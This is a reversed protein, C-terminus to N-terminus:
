TPKVKSVIRKVIEDIGLGITFSLGATINASVEVEIGDPLRTPSNFVPEMNVLHHSFEHFRAVIVAMIGFSIVLRILGKVFYRWQFKYPTKSDTKIATSLNMLFRIIIGVIGVLYFVLFEKGTIGQLLMSTVDEDM